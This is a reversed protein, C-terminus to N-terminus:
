SALPQYGLLEISVIFHHLIHIDLLKNLVCLFMYFHYHIFMLCLFPIYSPHRQDSVLTFGVSAGLSVICNLHM